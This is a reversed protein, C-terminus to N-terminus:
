AAGDETDVGTILLPVRTPVVPAAPVVAMVEVRLNGHRALWSTVHEVRGPTHERVWGTPTATWPRLGEAIRQAAGMDAVEVTLIAHDQDYRIARLEGGVTYLEDTIRVLLGTVEHGRPPVVLPAPSNPTQSM